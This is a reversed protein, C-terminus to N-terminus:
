IPKKLLKMGFGPLDPPTYCGDILKYSSFDVDESFCTVGEITATNGLAGALHSTYATKLFDGWNHPSALIKNKELVPMLNRWPTFGFGMIDPLHVDILRMDELQDLIEMDPNSEGDAFHKIHSHANTWDRLVRYKEVTEAFPEELWFLPIDGIGKLYEIIGEPTFGDNGDVLLETKPFTDNILKTIEIDRKLGEEGPLWKNGRGIKIKLQRYGYNIDYQCEELIKDLGSKKDPQDLDDFYIMGSYCKVKVPRAKGLIKYVPVKLIQGALDHMPIDFTRADNNFVGHGASFFDSLSKGKVIEFAEKSAKLNSRLAGWGTAGKDTKLVAVTMSPGMGHIGRIANRGVQRPYRLIIEVFDIGDIKHQKLEDDFGHGDRFGPFINGKNGAVTGIALAAGFSKRFFDRRKM